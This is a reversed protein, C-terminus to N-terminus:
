RGCCPCNERPGSTIQTSSKISETLIRSLDRRKFLQELATLEDLLESEKESRTSSLKRELSNKLQQLQRSLM